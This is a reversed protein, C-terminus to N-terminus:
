NLVCYKHVEEQIIKRALKLENERENQNKRIKKEIDEINYLVINKLKGVRPDIDRPVALDFIYMKQKANFKERKVILHPASTSSILIDANEIEQYLKDFKLATCGLSESLALAKDYTRNAIFITKSGNRVLYKIVSVNLNNIGLILIQSEELNIKEQKVIELVAQSHSMAGKSIKTENRVRKGVRLANQFLSHLGKSLCKKELAEIYAKKVQGQIATEGVLASELGSVVRYLHEVIDHPIKGDGEYLEVRNCTQLLVYNEPLIKKIEDVYKERQSLTYTLDKNKLTIM